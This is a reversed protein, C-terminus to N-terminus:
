FRPANIEERLKDAKKTGAYLQTTEMRKHGAWEMVTRVDVGQQLWFTICTSRLRHIYHRECGQAENECTGQPRMCHGCNLGARHAIRKFQFLFKGNPNGENNPFIWRASAQPRTKDAKRAKLLEVVEQSLHIDRNEHTKTKWTKVLGLSGSPTIKRYEKTRVKFIKKEFNIDEWTAFQVEQDRAGTALFFMYRTYEEQSTPEGPWLDKDDKSEMAAFLKRLDGETYPDPTPEELTPLSVKKSPEKIGAHKLVFCVAMIKNEITRDCNGNAKLMKKYASWVSGDIQDAFRVSRPLQALFERLIPTYTKISGESIEYRHVGEAEPDLFEDVAQAILKRNPDDPDLADESRGVQGSVPSGNMAARAEEITKFQESWGGTSVRYQFGRGGNLADKKAAQLWVPPKGAGPQVEVYQWGIMPVSAKLVNGKADKRAKTMFGDAETLKLRIAITAM